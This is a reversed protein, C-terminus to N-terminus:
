IRRLIEFERLTLQSEIILVDCSDLARLSVIQTLINIKFFGSEVTVNNSNEKIRKLISFIPDLKKINDNMELPAIIIM